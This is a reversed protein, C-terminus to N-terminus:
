EPQLVKIAKPNDILNTYITCKKHMEFLWWKSSDFMLRELPEFYAVEFYCDYFEEIIIDSEFILNGKLDKMGSSLCLTRPIVRVKKDKNVLFTIKWEKICNGYVWKKPEEYSKARCYEWNYRKHM